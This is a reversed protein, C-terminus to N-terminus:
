YIQLAKEVQEIQGADISELSNPTTRVEYVRLMVSKVRRCRRNM